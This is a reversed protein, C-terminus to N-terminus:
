NEVKLSGHVQVEWQLVAPEPDPMTETTGHTRDGAWLQPKLFGANGCSHCLDCRHSTNTEQGPVQM